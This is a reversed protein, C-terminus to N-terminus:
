RSPTNASIGNNPRVWTRPSRYRRGEVAGSNEADHTFRDATAWALFPGAAAESPFYLWHDIKPHVTSDDGAKKLQEVVGMDHIVCWDDPTPYLDKWYGNRAADDEVLGQIVYGSRGGPGPCIGEVDARRADHLCSHRYGKTTVRGVYADQTGALFGNLDDELASVAEFEENTPLGNEAPQKYM